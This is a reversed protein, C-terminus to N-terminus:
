FLPSVLRALVEKGKQWRSRQEFEELEIERCAKLDQIFDSELRLITDKDFLVANLEFNNYFSRMDMNATGVTALLDDIIMVKAHVFGRQYAYFRVGAQLLEELYSLSAYNVMRSDPKEPYIIRVDIGSIAATKLGMLLSADPVFYPTTIFIRRKAATVSGFFMELVADWHADPGSAIVQVPKRGRCAHEPFYASESLREGSVFRWDKIFTHQLAYVSDGELRLHTDRWFGLSSNRGLYEDGINLGGLFGVTGDIVIIKRHNRYNIRKDFFAILAPLFIYVECGAAKLESIFGADLHYSGIGDFICRVQVGARAKRILLEQFRRGIRDNRVTYFEFHIHKEAGEMAELMEPYAEDANALVQVENQVTILTGPINNLLAFLRPEHKWGQLREEEIQPDSAKMKKGVQRLDHVLGLGKRRVKRRQRYEKALFYYMVFGIVPIVFLIFLWALAKPPHRFEGVIITFIQLIFLLLALIIWLQM